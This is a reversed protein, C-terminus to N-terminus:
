KRKKQHFPQVVWDSAGFALIEFGYEKFRYPLNRGCYADGCKIPSENEPGEFEQNNLLDNFLLLIREDLEPDLPPSFNFWGDYNLPFYLFGESKLMSKFLPFALNPNTHEIAAQGMVLDFHEIFRSYKSLNYLNEVFGCVEVDRVKDSLRIEFDSSNDIKLNCNLGRKTGWDKLVIPMTKILDKKIDFAYITADKILGDEIMRIIDQGTGACCDLCELHNKDKLYDILNNTVDLNYAGRYLVPKWVNQYELDQYFKEDDKM